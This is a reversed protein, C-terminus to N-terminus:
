VIRGIAMKQCNLYSFCVLNQHERREWSRMLWLLTFSTQIPTSTDNAHSFGWGRSKGERGKWENECHWSRPQAVFWNRLPRDGFIATFYDGTQIKQLRCLLVVLQRFALERFHPRNCVVKTHSHRWFWLYLHCLTLELTGRFSVFRSM